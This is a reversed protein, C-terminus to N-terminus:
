LTLVIPPKLYEGEANHAGRLLVKGEKVIIYADGSIAYDGELVIMINNYLQTFRVDAAMFKKFNFLREYIERIISEGVGGYLKDITVMIHKNEKKKGEGTDRVIEIEAEEKGITIWYVLYNDKRPLLPFVKKIIRKNVPPIQLALTQGTEEDEDEIGSNKSRVLKGFEEILPDIYLRNYLDYIMPRAFLESESDRQLMLVFAPILTQLQNIGNVVWIKDEIKYDKNSLDIACITKTDSSLTLSNSWRGTNGQLQPKKMTISPITSLDFSHHHFILPFLSPVGMEYRPPAYFVRWIGPLTNLSGMNICPEGIQLRNGSFSAGREADDNRILTVKNGVRFGGRYEEVIDLLEPLLQKEEM